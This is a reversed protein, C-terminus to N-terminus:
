ILLNTRISRLVASQPNQKLVVKGYRQQDGCPKVPKRITKKVIEIIKRGLELDIGNLIVM